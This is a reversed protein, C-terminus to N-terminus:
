IPCAAATAETSGASESTGAETEDAKTKEDPKGKADPKVKEEPKSGTATGTSPSKGDSGTGRVIKDLSLKAPIEVRVGRNEPVIVPPISVSGVFGFQGANLQQSGFSNKVIISGEVVDLHTGDALPNGDATPPMNACDGKCLLVGYRTGRIGITAERTKVSYSDPDGRKGILGSVARLSGKILNFGATDKGPQQSDFHYGEIKFQTTPRLSIQGGDSFKVRAYSDKGTFLTDGMLVKGDVSLPRLEGSAGKASLSGVVNKVEGIENAAAFAGSIFFLSLWIFGALQCFQNFLNKM